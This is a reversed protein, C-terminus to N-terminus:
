VFATSYAFLLIYHSLNPTFSIKQAARPAFFCTKDGPGSVLYIKKINQQGHM